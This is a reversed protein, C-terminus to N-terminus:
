RRKRVAQVRARRAELERERRTANRACGRSNRKSSPRARAHRSCGAGCSKRTRARVRRARRALTGADRSARRDASRTADAERQAHACNGNSRMSGRSARRSRRRGSRADRRRDRRGGRAADRDRDGDREPARAGGARDERARGAAREVRDGVGGTEGLRRRSNGGHAERWRSRKSPARSSAGRREIAAREAERASARPGTSRVRRRARARRSRRRVPRRAHSAGRGRAGTRADGSRDRRSRRAPTVRDEASGGSIMRGPMVLDGDRTVFVTGHGNLNSAALASHLDDALMVHGLMAEAVRRSARSSKSCRSWGDRSEPRTSRRILRSACRRAGARLRMRGARNEKLIEIARLAFQPSEVIVADMQDGLVAKLAPELALPARMVHKCFAFSRDAPRDGNLSELVTRLRCSSRREALSEIAIEGRAVLVGRLSNVRAASPRARHASRDRTRCCRAAREELETRNDARVSRPRAEAAAMLERATERQEADRAHPAEADRSRSARRTRRARRRSRRPTRSNRRGRARRRVTRGQMRRRPARRKKLERQGRRAQALNRSRPEGDGGGAAIERALTAGAEAAIRARSRRRPNWTRGAARALDIELQAIADLRRQLFERTRAREHAGATSIRSSASRAASSRGRRSRPRRQASEVQERIAASAARARRRARSM